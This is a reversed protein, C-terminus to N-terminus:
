QTDANQNRGKGLESFTVNAVSKFKGGLSVSPPLTPSEPQGSIPVQPPQRQTTSVSIGPFFGGHEPNLEWAM